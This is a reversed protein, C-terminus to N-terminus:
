ERVFVGAERLAERFAASAEAESGSGDLAALCARAAAYYRPGPEATWRQMLVRAAADASAVTRFRGRDNEEFTVRHFM